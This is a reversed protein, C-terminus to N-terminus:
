KAGASHHNARDIGALWQIVHLCTLGVGIWGRSQDSYLLNAEGALVFWHDSREQQALMLVRVYIHMHGKM